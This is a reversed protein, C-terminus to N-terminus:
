LPEDESEVMSQVSQQTDTLEQELLAEQRAVQAIADEEAEACYLDEFKIESSFHKLAAKIAKFHAHCQDCVISSEDNSISNFQYNVVKRLYHEIALYTSSFVTSCDSCFDLSSVLPIGHSKKIHGILKPWSYAQFYCYEPALKKETVPKLIRPNNELMQCRWFKYKHYVSDNVYSVIPYPLKQPTNSRQSM